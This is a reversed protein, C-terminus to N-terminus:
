LDNLDMIEMDEDRRGRRKKAERGAKPRRSAEEEMDWDDMPDHEPQAAQPQATRHPYKVSQRMREAAAQMPDSPSSTQIKQLDMARSSRMQEQLRQEAQRQALDPQSLRMDDPQMQQRPRPGADMDDLQRSVYPMVDSQGSRRNATDPQMSQRNATGPQMYQRSATDPQVFQRSAASAQGYQRRTMDPQSPRQMDDSQGSQHRVADTHIQAADPQPRMTRDQQKNLRQENGSKIRTEQGYASQRSVQARIEEPTSIHDQRASPKQQMQAAPEQTFTKTVKKSRKGVNGEFNRGAALSSKSVTEAQRREKKKKKKARARERSEDEGEEEDEERGRLLLASFIIIILIIAIVLISVIKVRSEKLETYKENLTNYKTLSVTREVEDEGEEDETSQLSAFANSYRLFTEQTKDYLYWGSSGDSYVGYVLYYDKLEESFQNQYAAVKKGSPLKLAKEGYGAPLEQRANSIWVVFQSGNGTYKFREVANKLEDYYYFGTSGKGDTNEMYVLYVQSAEHYLAPYTQDGIRVSGQGFSSPIDQTTSGYTFNGSLKYAAGSLKVTGDAKVKASLREALSRKKSSGTQTGAGDAGGAQTGAGDTGGATDAADTGGDTDNVTGAADPTGGATEPANGVGDDEPASGDAGALTGEQNGAPQQGAADASGVTLTITYVTFTNDQASCTVKITNVGPQLGDRGEVSAIVAGSAAARPVAQVQVSTVGADVTSTYETIDPQFAPSLVGPSIDFASLKSDHSASVQAAELTQPIYAHQMQMSLFLGTCAALLLRKSKNKKM